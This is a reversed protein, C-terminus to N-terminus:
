GNDVITNNYPGGDDTIGSFQLVTYTDGAAVRTITDGTSFDLIDVGLCNLRQTDSLGVFPDNLNACSLAQLDIYLDPNTTDSWNQVDFVLGRDVHQLPVEIRWGAWAGNFFYSSSDGRWAEMRVDAFRQDDYNLRDHRLRALIQKAVRQCDEEYAVLQEADGQQGDVRKIVHFAVHHTVMLNNSKNDIGEEEYSEVLLAMDDLQTFQQEMAETLKMRAFAKRGGVTHQLELHQVALNQMYVFWERISMGKHERSM